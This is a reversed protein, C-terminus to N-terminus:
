SGRGGPPEPVPAGESEALSELAGEVDGEVDGEVKAEGDAEPEQFSTRLPVQKIFWSFCFGVVAVVASWFFIVHTGSSVADQFLLRLPAPLSHVMDPTMASPNGHQAAQPGLSAFKDTLTSAFLAGLISVGVSGGLNRTFTATGTASGIDPVSVSNQAILTTTQM